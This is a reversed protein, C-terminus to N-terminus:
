AKFPFHDGNCTVFRPIPPSCLRAAAALEQADSLWHRGRSVVDCSCMCIDACFLDSLNREEGIKMCVYFEIRRLEYLVCSVQNYIFM